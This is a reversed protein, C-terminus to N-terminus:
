PLGRKLASIRLELEVVRAKLQDRDAELAAHRRVDNRNVRELHEAAEVRAKLQDRETSLQKSTKDHSMEEAQLKREAADARVNAAEASRKWDNSQAELSVKDRELEAIKANAAELAVLADAEIAQARDVETHDRQLEEIKANAAALDRWIRNFHEADVYGQPAGGGTSVAGSPPADCAGGGPGDTKTEHEATEARANAADREKCVALYNAEHGAIRARLEAIKANAATLEKNDSDIEVQLTAIMANAAALAVDTQRLAETKSNATARALREAVTLEAIRANAAAGAKTAAALDRQLEAIKATATELDGQLRREVAEPHPGVTHVGNQSTYYLPEAADARAIAADFEKAWHKASAELYAIKANAAENAAENVARLQEVMSEWERHTYLAPEAAQAPAPEEAACVACDGCDEIPVAGCRRCAQAPASVCNTVCARGHMPCLPEAAQATAIRDLESQLSVVKAETIDKATRIARYPEAADARARQRDRQDLLYTRERNLEAIRAKLQDIEANAAEAAEGNADADLNAANLRSELEAIKANAAANIASLQEVM